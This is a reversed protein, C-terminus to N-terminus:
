GKPPHPDNGHSDRERIRGDRGHIYLESGQNRAVSRGADIAQEQTDHVSSARRSGAGRVAWGEKHPVVHQDRKSM